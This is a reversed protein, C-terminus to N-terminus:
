IEKLASELFLFGEFKKWNNDFDNLDSSISIDSIMLLTDDIMSSTDCIIFLTDKIMLSIDGIILVVNIISSVGKIIPSMRKIDAVDGPLGPLFLEQFFISGYLKLM